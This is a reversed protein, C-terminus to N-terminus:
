IITVAPFPVDGGGGKSIAATAQGWCLVGAPCSGAEQGYASRKAIARPLFVDALLCPEEADCCAM